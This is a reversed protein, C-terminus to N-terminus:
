LLTMLQTKQTLSLLLVTSQSGESGELQDQEEDTLDRSSM